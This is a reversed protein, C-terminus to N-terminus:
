KKFFDPYYSFVTPYYKTVLRHYTNDAKCASFFKEFEVRLGFASKDFAYAMEQQLSIPGVVKIEGAWRELAILAVPVDMLTTDVSGAIVSPIMEDLDREPPFLKVNAGTEQMQYLAPDLCSDKMALVSTGQLGAKVAAIDKLIDGTPTIPNLVSDARAILWVGTPFAPTSFDVIKERWPLVTFGTGIVDGRVPSTGTVEVESGNPNITKGTLDPIINNWSSEVFEYKVGLYQAFLKMVEVDLGDEQNSVFNAYPIGLHRLVGRRRIEALDGAYVSSVLLCFVAIMWFLTRIIGDDRFKTARM